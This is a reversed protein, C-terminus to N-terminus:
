SGSSVEELRLAFLSILTTVAGVTFLITPTNWGDFLRESVIFVSAAAAILVGSGLNMLM